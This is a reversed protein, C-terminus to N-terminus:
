DVIKINPDTAAKAKEAPSWSDFDARRVIRAGGGPNGGGGTNGGGRNANGKMIADKNPYAEVLVKLAEEFPAPQGLRETARSLIPNGTHDKASINGTADDVTFFRGFTSQVIDKPIALTDDVWKSGTFAETLVKENLRAQLTDGRKQAETLQGKYGEEITAKVRDVEGADLLKKQDLKEVIGLAERAKVPDIGEYPKLKEALTEKERRHGAAESNLATIKSRGTWYEGPDVLEEKDGNIFVLKGDRVPQQALTPVNEGEFAAMLAVHSIGFLNRIHM